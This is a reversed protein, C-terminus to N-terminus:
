TKCTVLIADGFVGLFGGLVTAFSETAVRPSESLYMYTCEQHGRKSERLPSRTVSRWFAPTTSTRCSKPFFNPGNRM